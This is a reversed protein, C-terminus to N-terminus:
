NYSKGKHPGGELGVTDKLGAPVTAWSLVGLLLALLFRQGFVVVRLLAGLVFKQGFASVRLHVGLM